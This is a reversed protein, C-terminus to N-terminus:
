GTVSEKEYKVIRKILAEIYANVVALSANTWAKRIQQPLDDFKPMPNGQFNKYDVTKGYMDYAIKALTELSKHEIDCDNESIKIKNM